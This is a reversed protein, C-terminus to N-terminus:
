HTRANKSNSNSTTTTTTFSRSNTPVNTGCPQNNKDQEPAWYYSIAGALISVVVILNIPSSLHRVSPEWLVPLFCSLPVAPSPSSSLLLLVSLCCLVRSLLPRVPLRVSLSFTPLVGVVHGFSPVVGFYEPLCELYVALPRAVMSGKGSLRCRCVFAVM